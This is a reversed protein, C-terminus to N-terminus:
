ASGQTWTLMRDGTWAAATLSYYEAPPPTLTRWSDTAPNYAAGVIPAAPSAETQSANPLPAGSGFFLVETGTWLAAAPYIDRIFEVPPPAITRWSDTAPDYAPSEMVQRQDVSLLAGVLIVEHGTWITVAAGNIFRDPMAFQATEEWGAATSSAETQPARDSGCALTTLGLGIAM